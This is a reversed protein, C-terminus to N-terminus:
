IISFYSICENNSSSLSDYTFGQVSYGVFRSKPKTKFFFDSDNSHLSNMYYDDTKVTTEMKYNKIFQFNNKNQFYQDWDFESFFSHKQFQRKDQGIRLDLDKELLQFILSRFEYSAKRNSPEPIINVNVINSLLNSNKLNQFPYKRYFLFHLLVGLSWFDSKHTRECCNIMEPSIYFITGQIDNKLLSSTGSLNFDCIKITGNSSILINEAKIDGYIVGKSHMYFLCDIIQAAIVRIENETFYM